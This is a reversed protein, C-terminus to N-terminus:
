FFIVTLKKELDILNAKDDAKLKFSNEREEGSEKVEEVKELKKMKKSKGFIENIDYEKSDVFCVFLFSDCSLYRPM